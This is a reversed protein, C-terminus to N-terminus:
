AAAASEPMDVVEQEIEIKVEDGVLWGGTELAVNWTLDFDKRNISTSASFGRRTNGWPDRGEGGYEVDFTIPRTVDKITMDGHVLYRNGGKAEIRTSRFSMTPYNEVDFFDPSRLHNDRDPEGTNISAVDVTGEVSSNEPQSADLNLVGDFSGFHGRVTAFMMHRVAFGVRSHAPDITWTM